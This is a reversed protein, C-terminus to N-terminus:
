HQPPMILDAYSLMITPFKEFYFGSLIDIIYYTDKLDNTNLGKSDGISSTDVKIFSQAPEQRM